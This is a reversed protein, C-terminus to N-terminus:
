SPKFRSSERYTSSLESGNPTSVMEASQNLPLPMSRREPSFYDQEVIPSLPKSGAAGFYGDDSASVVRSDLRLSHTSTPQLSSHKIAKPARSPGALSPAPSSSSREIIHAALPPTLDAMEGKWADTPAFQLDDAALSAQSASHSPTTTGSNSPLATGTRSTWKKGWSSHKDSDSGSARSPFPFSFNM